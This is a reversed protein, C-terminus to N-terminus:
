LVVDFHFPGRRRAHQRPSIWGLFCKQSSKSENEANLRLSKVKKILRRRNKRRARRKSSAPTEWIPFQVAALNFYSPISYIKVEFSYVEIFLRGAEVANLLFGTPEGGAEGQSADCFLSFTSKEGRFPASGAFFAAFYYKKLIEGCPNGM